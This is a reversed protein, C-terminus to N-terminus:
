PCGEIKAEFVKQNANFGPLLVISNGAFYKTTNSITGTSSITKEAKYNEPTVTGSHTINQPCGAVTVTGSGRAISICSELSTCSAYYITSTTLIPTTFTSGTGLESGASPANYWKITGACGSAVLTVTQGSNISPSNVTPASPITNIIAQAARRTSTCGAITCSVYYTTNASLSPTTFSATSALPSDGASASYWNYTGGTCGSANFTVTGVGCRSVNAITPEPTSCTLNIIYDETEGWSYASCQSEPIEDYQLRARMRTLGPTVAGVTFSLNGTSSWNSIGYTTIVEGSEFVGNRNYDIWVKLGANYASPKTVSIIYTTGSSLTPIVSPTTISYGLSSCGSNQSMITTSGSRLTVNTIVDNDSCNTSSPTCYCNTSAEKLINVVTSYSTNSNATAIRFYYTIGPTLDSYQSYTYSTTNINLNAIANWPGTSSTAMELIYGMENTTNDSWTFVANCGSPTITLNTAAPVSPRCEMNYTGMLSNRLYYGAEMRDIQGATLTNRCAHYYSMLNTLQPNYSQGNADLVTGTYTCTSQNYFYCCPDAPTDCVQDGATSCNSGNVREAGFYTEHTHYLNWFHGMEHGLTTGNSTAGNAMIMRNENRDSSPFASIGNLISSGTTLTNVFYINLADHVNNKVLESDETDVDLSYLATNDIYHIPGCLTFSMNLAAFQSNMTTIADNLVTLSLGGTGNTNRVIHAKIPIVIAPSIVSQNKKYNKIFVENAEIVQPTPLPTGCDEVIKDDAKLPKTTQSFSLTSFLLIIPLLRSIM